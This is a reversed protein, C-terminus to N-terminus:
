CGLVLTGRKGKYVAMQRHAVDTEWGDLPLKQGRELCIVRGGRKNGKGEVKDKEGMKPDEMKGTGVAM